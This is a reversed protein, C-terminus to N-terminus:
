KTGRVLPLTWAFMVGGSGSVLYQQGDLEYTIPSTQM